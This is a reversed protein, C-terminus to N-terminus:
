ILETIKFLYQRLFSDDGCRKVTYAPYIIKTTLHVIM